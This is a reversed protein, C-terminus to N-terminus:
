EISVKMSIFIKKVSGGQLLTRTPQSRTWSADKIDAELNTSFSKYIFLFSSKESVDTKLFLELLSVLKIFNCSVM